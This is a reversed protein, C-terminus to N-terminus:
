AGRRLKLGLSSCLKSLKFPFSKGSDRRKRRRAAPIRSITQMRSRAIIQAKRPAKTEAPLLPALIMPVTPHRPLGAVQRSITRAALLDVARIQTAARAQTAVRAPTAAREPMPPQAAVATMQQAARLPRIRAPLLDRGLRSRQRESKRM